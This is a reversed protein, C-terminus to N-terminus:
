LRQSFLSSGCEVVRRLERVRPKAFEGDHGRAGSPDDGGDGLGGIIQDLALSVPSARRMM